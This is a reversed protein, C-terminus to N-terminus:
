LPENIFTDKIVVLQSKVFYWGHGMECHGALTHGQEFPHDLRVGVNVNDFDVITGMSGVLPGGSKVIVVVRDGDRM